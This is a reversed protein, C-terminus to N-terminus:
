LELNDLLNNYKDYFSSQAFDKIVTEPLNGFLQDLYNMVEKLENKEVQINNASDKDGKADLEEQNEKYSFLNQSIHEKSELEDKVNPKAHKSMEDRLSPDSSQSDSNPFSDELVTTSDQHHTYFEVSSDENGTLPKNLENEGDDPLELDDDLVADIAMSFEGGEVVEPHEDLDDFTLREDAPELDDDLVQDIVDIDMDDMSLRDGSTDSLDMSYSSSPTSFNEFPKQHPHDLSDIFSHNDDLSLSKTDPEILVYDKFPTKSITSTKKTHININKKSM